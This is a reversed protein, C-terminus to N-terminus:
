LGVSFPKSVTKIWCLQYGFFFSFDKGDVNDVDLQYFGDKCTDCARGETNVKCPCQGIQDPICAQSSGFTGANNCECASFLVFHAIRSM